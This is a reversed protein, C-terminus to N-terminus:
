VTAAHRVVGHLGAIGRLVVRQRGPSLRKRRGVDQGLRALRPPAAAAPRLAPQAAPTPHQALPEPPLRYPRALVQARGHVRRAQVGEERPRPHRGGLRAVLPRLGQVGEVEARRRPSDRPHARLAGPRPPAPPPRGPSRPPRPHPLAARAVRLLVRRRAQRRPRRARRALPLRHGAARRPHLAPLAQRHALLPAPPLAPAPEQLARRRRRLRGRHRSKPAPGPVAPLERPLLLPPPPDRRTSVNKKKKQTPLRKTSQNSVESSLQLPARVDKTVKSLNYHAINHYR